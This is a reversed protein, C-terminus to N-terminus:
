NRVRCRHTCAPAGLGDEGTTILPQLFIQQGCFHRRSWEAHDHRRMIDPTFATRLYESGMVPLPEAGAGGSNIAKLLEPQACLLAPNITARGM